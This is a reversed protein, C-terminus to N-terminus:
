RSVHAVGFQDIEATVTTRSALNMVRVLQGASARDLARGETKITLGATEYILPIVQNRQVVAPPGIDSLRIPRGAFLAVRAEMGILASSDSVGGNIAVDKLTLDEPTIISHAPITRVPVLVEAFAPFTAFLCIFIYRIM